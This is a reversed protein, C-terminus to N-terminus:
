ISKHNNRQENHEGKNCIRRHDNYGCGNQQHVQKHCDICLTICNDVDASEIPNLEVGTIHHCHLTDTRGCKQCTWVDRQLVLKRLQQQVERSTAPKHDKPYLTQNYTSCSYKCGDSCYLYCDGISVTSRLAQVRSRIQQNTPIFYKGCYKCRVELSVGDSSLRPDEDITLQHHYTSYLASTSYYEKIRDPNTDYQEKQHIKIRDTNAKYYGRYYGRHCQKCLHRLGDKSSKHKYFDDFSKEEKCKICIKTKM